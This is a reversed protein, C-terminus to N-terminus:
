HACACVFRVHADIGLALSLAAAMSKWILCGSTVKTYYKVSSCCWHSMTVIILVCVDQHGLFFILATPNANCTHFCNLTQLRKVFQMDNEIKTYYMRNSCISARVGGWYDKPTALLKQRHSLPKTKMHKTSSHMHQATPLYQLQSPAGLSMYDESELSLTQFALNGKWRSGLIFFHSCTVLQQQKTTSTPKIKTWLKLYLSPLTQQELSLFSASLLHRLLLGELSLM